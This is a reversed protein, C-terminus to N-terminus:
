AAALQTLSGLAPAPTPAGDRGSGAREGGGEPGATREWRWGAGLGCQRWGGPECGASAAPRRGARLPHLVALPCVPNGRLGHSPALRGNRCWAGLPVVAGAAPRRGARSACAIRRRWAASRRVAAALRWARAATPRASGIGGRAGSRRWAHGAPAFDQAPLWGRHAAPRYDSLMRTFFPTGPSPMPRSRRRTVRRCNRAKRAGRRGRGRCLVIM